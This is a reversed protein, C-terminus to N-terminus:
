RVIVASVRDRVRAHEGEQQAWNDESPLRRDPINMCNVMGCHCMAWNPQLTVSAM